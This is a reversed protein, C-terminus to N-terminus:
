CLHSSTKNWSNETDRAQGPLLSWQAKKRETDSSMIHNLGTSSRVFHPRLPWMLSAKPSFMIFCFLCIVKGAVETHNRVAMNWIELFVRDCSTHIQYGAAMELCLASSNTCSLTGESSKHGKHAGVKVRPWSLPCPRCAPSPCPIPWQLFYVCCTNISISQLGSARMQIWNFNKSGFSRRNLQLTDQAKRIEFSDLKSGPGKLGSSPLLTYTLVQEGSQWAIWSQKFPDFM